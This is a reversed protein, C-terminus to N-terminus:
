EETFNGILKEQGSTGKSGGTRYIRVTDKGTRPDHILDVKAGIHWGRAHISLGSDKSGVAKYNTDKKGQATLYFHAM